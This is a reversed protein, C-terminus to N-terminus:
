ITTTQCTTGGSACTVPFIPCGECTDPPRDGLMPERKLPEWPSALTGVRSWVVGAGVYNPPKM